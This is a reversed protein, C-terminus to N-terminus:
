EDTDMEMPLPIELGVAGATKSPFVCAAYEWGGYEALRDTMARIDRIRVGAQPVIEILLQCSEELPETNVVEAAVGELRFFSEVAEACVAEPDTPESHPIAEKVARRSGQRDLMSILVDRDWLEIGNAEALRRAPETFYSNTMVVGHTCGYVALGGVVEQIASNNLKKGYRKCQVAYKRRKKVAIIDVGLDGSGKTVEVNKFGNARLLGACAYEFEHGEMEDLKNITLRGSRRLIAVGVFLTSYVAATVPLIGKLASARSGSILGLERLLWEGGLSLGAIVILGFLLYRLWRRSLLGFLKGITRFPLLITGAASTRGAKTRSKDKM